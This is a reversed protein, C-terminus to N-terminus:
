VDGFSLFSAVEESFSVNNPDHIGSCTLRLTLDTLGVLEFSQLKLHIRTSLNEHYMLSYSAM